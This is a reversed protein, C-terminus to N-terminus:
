QNTKETFSNLDMSVRFFFVVRSCVFFGFYLFSGTFNHHFQLTNFFFFFLFRCHLIWGFGDYKLSTSYFCGVTAGFCCLYRFLVFFVNELYNPTALHKHIHSLARARTKCTDYSTNTYFKLMYIYIRWGRRASKRERECVRAGYM